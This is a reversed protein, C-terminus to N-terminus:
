MQELERALALFLLVTLVITWIIHDPIGVLSKKRLAVQLISWFVFMNDYYIISAVFPTKTYYIPLLIRQASLVVCCVMSYDFYRLMAPFLTLLAAHPAQSSFLILIELYLYLSGAGNPACKERQIPFFARGAGGEWSKKRRTQM